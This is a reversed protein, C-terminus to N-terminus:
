GMMDGVLRRHIMHIPYGGTPKNNPGSAVLYCRAIPRGGRLRGSTESETRYIRIPPLGMTPYGSHRNDHLIRRIWRSDVLYPSIRDSMGVHAYGWQDPVRQNLDENRSATDLEFM